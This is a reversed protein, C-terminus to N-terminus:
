RKGWHNINDHWSAVLVTRWDLRGTLCYLAPGHEAHDKEAPTLQLSTVSREDIVDITGESM